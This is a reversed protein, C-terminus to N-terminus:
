RVGGREDVRQRRHSRVLVIVTLAFTILFMIVAIASAYGLRYNTFGQLFMYTALLETSNSPGGGTMIYVLDFAKISGALSLISTTVIVPRLLPLTVYWFRQWRSAGDLSAAEYVEENIGALAALYIIMYFPAWQWVNTVLVAPLATSSQGLWGQALDGLGIARLFGNVIGFDPSYVLRWLIAVAVTSMLTPLFYVARWLRKMRRASAVILALGLAIPLQIVISVILLVVTNSMATWFVPDSLLRVFNEMGVVTAARGPGAWSTFSLVASQAVPYILFVSYVALAPLLFAFWRAREGMRM